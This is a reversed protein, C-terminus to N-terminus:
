ISLQEFSNELDFLLHEQEATFCEITVPSIPFTQLCQTSKIFITEGALCHQGAFTQM